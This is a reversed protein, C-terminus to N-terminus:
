THLSSSLTAAIAHSWTRGLQVGRPTLPVGVKETPDEKLPCLLTLESKQPVDGFRERFTNLDLNADDQWSLSMGCLTHSESAVPVKQLAVLDVTGCCCHSTGAAAAAASVEGVLFGRDELMQCVNKRVTYMRTLFDM